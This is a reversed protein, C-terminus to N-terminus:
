YIKTLLVNVLYLNFILIHCIILVTNKSDADIFVESSGSYIFQFGLAFHQKFSVLFGYFRHVTHWFFIFIISSFFNFTTSIM